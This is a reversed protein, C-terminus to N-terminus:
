WVDHVVSWSCLGINVLGKFCVNRFTTASVVDSETGVEELSLDKQIPRVYVKAQGVVSKVYSTTYGGSPPPIIQLEHSSGVARLLEYGGGDHLKPFKEVLQEHFEWADGNEFLSLRAGGLGARILEAKHLPDPTRKQDIHALCTFEKEWM